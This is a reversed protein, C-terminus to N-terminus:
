SPMGIELETPRIDSADGDLQALGALLDAVRALGPVEFDPDVEAWPVLVFGRRHLLPHPIVLDAEDVRQDGVALVDVDLTRAGWRVTRVRGARQELRQALELMQRGSLVTDMVVVANLYRPQEPGGVPETEYVRSVAVVEVGPTCGLEDVASRLFHLRDGLNSGLALAARHATM